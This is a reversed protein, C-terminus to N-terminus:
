KLNQYYFNILVANNATIVPNANFKIFCNEPTISPWNTLYIKGRNLEPCLVNLSANFIQTKSKNYIFIQGRSLQDSSLLIKEDGSRDIASDLVANSTISIGVIKQDELFTDQELFIEKGIAFQNFGTNQFSVISQHIVVSNQNFFAPAILGLNLMKNHSQVINYM